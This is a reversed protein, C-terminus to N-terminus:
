RKFKARYEEYWVSVKDGSHFRSIAKTNFTPAESFRTYYTSGVKYWQWCDVHGKIPELAKTSTNMGVGSVNWCIRNGKVYWSGNAYGSWYYPKSKDKDNTFVVKVKGNSAFYAADRNKWIVSNGAYMKRLETGQLPTAGSPLPEAKAPLSVLPLLLLLALFRSHM